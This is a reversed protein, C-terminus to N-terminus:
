IGERLLLRIHEEIKPKSISNRNGMIQVAHAGIVNGIFCTTEIPAGQASCPATISLFADGAGIRDVVMGSLAPVETFGEQRSWGVCGINGRTAILRDCGIRNSIMSMLERLEGHRSRCELRVEKEALSIHDARPYRSISHFGLNGANSQANVALYKSRECLINIANRSIAGHGFDVVIVLDHEPVIEDLIECLQEDDQPHLLDDNMEYVEFLKQLFYDEIYRRKLITPSDRRTLLWPKVTAALRTRVFEEFSNESGLFSVLSVQETFEAIHNAVAVIGGAFAEAATRQIVLIPEKSSKGIAHCYQYEDIITEGVVLIKLNRIGELYALIDDLNQRGSFGRLYALAPEPLDVM